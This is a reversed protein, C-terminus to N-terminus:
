DDKSIVAEVEVIGQVHAAKASVPYAPQVKQVLNGQAVQGGIRIKKGQEEHGSVVDAVGETGENPMTFERDVHSEAKVDFVRFISSFGPKELRLVYQGAGSGSFSFKGDSGTIAEQTTATDPNSMIVKADAVAAGNVDHVTGNLTAASLGASITFASL